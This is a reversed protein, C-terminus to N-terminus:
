EPRRCRACISVVNTSSCYGRIANLMDADVPDAAKASPTIVQALAALPVAMAAVSARAVRLLRLM